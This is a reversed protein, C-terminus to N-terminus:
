RAIRSGADLGRSTTGSPGRMARALRVRVNGDHPALEPEGRRLLAAVDVIVLEGRPQAAEHALGGAAALAVVDRDVALNARQEVLRGLGLALGGGRQLLDEDVHLAPAVQRVVEAREVDPVVQRLELGADHAAALHDMLFPEHDALRVRLRRNEGVLHLEDDEIGIPANGAADLDLIEQWRKEAAVVADQIALVHLDHGVALDRM